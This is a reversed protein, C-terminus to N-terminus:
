LRRGEGRDGETGAFCFGADALLFLFLFIYSVFVATAVSPAPVFLPPNTSMLVGRLWGAFWSVLLSSGPM